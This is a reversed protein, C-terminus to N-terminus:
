SSSTLTHEDRGLSQLGDLSCDDDSDVPLNVSLNVALLQEEWDDDTDSLVNDLEDGGWRLVWV